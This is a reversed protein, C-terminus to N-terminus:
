LSVVVTTSTIFHRILLTHKEGGAARVTFSFLFTTTGRSVQDLWSLSSLLSATRHSFCCCRKCCRLRKCVWETCTIQDPEPVLVQQEPNFVSSSYHGKFWGTTECQLFFSICDRVAFGTAEVWRYSLWTMFMYQSCSRARHKPKTSSRLCTRIHIHRSNTPVNGVLM